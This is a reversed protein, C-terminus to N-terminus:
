SIPIPALLRRGLLGPRRHRRRPAPDAPLGLGAGSEVTMERRRFLRPRGTSVDTAAILLEPGATTRLLPSISTRKSCSASPISAWRISTTPRSCARWRRWRTPAASAPSGRSQPAPSRARRGQGRSGVGRAAQRARRRPRGRRAGGGAGRRQGRRRQHRQDLRNRADRGRAPPRARGLHLRRARRRRRAGSQPAAAAPVHEAIAGQRQWGRM